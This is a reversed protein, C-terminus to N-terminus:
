RRCTEQGVDAFGASGLVWGDLMRGNGDITFNIRLWDEGRAM